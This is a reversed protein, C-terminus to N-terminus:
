KNYAYQPHEVYLPDNFTGYDLQAAISATQSISELAYIKYEYEVNQQKLQKLEKEYYNIEDSLGVGKVFIGINVGVLIILALSIFTNLTLKM